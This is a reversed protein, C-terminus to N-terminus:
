KRTFIIVGNQRSDAKFRVEYRNPGDNVIMLGTNPPISGENVAYILLENEKKAPDLTVTLKLPKDTLSKNDLINKGNFFVSVIDGDVDANDYLDITVTSQTLAINQLVANTRNTYDTIIKEKSALPETKVPTDAVKNGNTEVSKEIQEKYKKVAATISEALEQQGEQSNLYKEDEPNNIFGTEVLIAPMNTAQLVWIGVQRQNVGLDNRGTKAIEKNVMTALLDSKEQFKKAYLSALMRGEPSKFDFNNIASDTADAEVVFEGEGKM